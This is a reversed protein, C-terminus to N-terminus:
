RRRGRGRRACRVARGQLQRDIEESLRSIRNDAEDIARLMSAIMFAHHGNFDGTLARTLLPVKGQLSGLALSALVQM